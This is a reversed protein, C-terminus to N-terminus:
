GNLLFGEEPKAVPTSFRSQILPKREPQLFSNCGDQHNFGPAIERSIVKKAFSSFHARM